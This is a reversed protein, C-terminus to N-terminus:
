PDILMYTITCCKPFWLDYFWISGVKHGQCISSTYHMLIPISKYDLWLSFHFSNSLNLYEEQAVHLLQTMGHKENHCRHHPSFINNISLSIESGGQELLM